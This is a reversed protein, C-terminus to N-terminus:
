FHFNSLTIRKEKPIKDEQWARVWIVPNEESMDVALFLYGIDNYSSSYYKQHVQISFFDDISPSMEFEAENFDLNIYERSKFHRRLRNMYNAKSITDYRVDEVFRIGDGKERKMLKHGTIILADDSFVQELYDIRRLAYATQYDEMFCLLALRSSIKWDTNDLIAHEDVDLLTFALSEILNDNNFRFTVNEIFQKNNNRFNFQMMLSRCLVLDGYDLFKYDPESVISANGYNILKTFCDMGEDTFYPKVDYYRKTRISAEIKSMIETLIVSRGRDVLEAGLSDIPKSAILSDMKLEPVNGETDRQIVVVYDKKFDKSQKQKKGKLQDYENKGIENEKYDCIFRLLVSDNDYRLEVLSFGDNVSLGQKWTDGNFFEFDLNSIEKYGEENKYYFGLDKKYITMMGDDEESEKICQVRINGLTEDLKDRFELNAPFRKDDYEIQLGKEELSLLYGSYFEKLAEGIKYNNVSKVGHEYYYNINLQLDEIRRAEEEKEEDKLKELEREMDEKKICCFVTYINRKKDFGVVYDYYYPFRVSSFLDSVESFFKETEIGKNVTRNIKTTNEITVNIKSALKKIADQRASDYKTGSGYSFIVDQKAQISKVKDQNDKIRKPSIVPDQAFISNCAFLLLAILVFQRRFM